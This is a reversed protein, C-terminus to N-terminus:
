AMMMNVCARHMAANGAAICEPAHETGCFSCGQETARTLHFLQQLDDHLLREALILCRTCIFGNAGGRGTPALGELRIAASAWLVLM